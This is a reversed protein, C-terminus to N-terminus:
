EIFLYTHQTWYFYIKSIKLLSSMKQCNHKYVSYSKSMKQENLFFHMLDSIFGAARTYANM